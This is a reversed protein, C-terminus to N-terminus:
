ASRSVRVGTYHNITFNGLPHAVATAPTLMLVALSVLAVVRGFAVRSRGRRRSRGVVSVISVSAEV